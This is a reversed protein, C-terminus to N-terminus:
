VLIFHHTILSGDAVTYPDQREDTWRYKDRSRLRSASSAPVVLEVPWSASSIKFFRPFVSVYARSWSNGLWSMKEGLASM